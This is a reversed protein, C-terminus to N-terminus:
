RVSEREAAVDDASEDEAGDFEGSPLDPSDALLPPSEPVLDASVDDLEVPEDDVPEVLEDEPPLDVPEPLPPEPLTAALAQGVDGRRQAGGM